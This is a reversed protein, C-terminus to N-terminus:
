RLAFAPVVGREDLGGGREAQEQRQQHNQKGSRDEALGVEGGPAPANREQQRHDQEAHGAGSVSAKALQLLALITMM